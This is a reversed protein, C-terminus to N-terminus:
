VNVDGKKILEVASKDQDFKLRAADRTLRATEIREKMELDGMAISMKYKQEEIALEYDKQIRAMEREADAAMERDKIQMEAQDRQARRQTRRQIPRQAQWALHLPLGIAPERDAATPRRHRQQHRDEPQAVPDVRRERHQRRQGALRGKGSDGTRQVTCRGPQQCGSGPPNQLLALTSGM